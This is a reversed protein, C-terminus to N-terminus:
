FINSCFYYAFFYLELTSHFLTCTTKVGPILISYDISVKNRMEICYKNDNNM